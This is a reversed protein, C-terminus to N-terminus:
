GGPAAPVDACRRYWSGDHIFEPGIVRLDFSQRSSQGEPSSCLDSQLRDAAIVPFSCVLGNLTVQDKAVDVVIKAEGPGCYTGAILPIPQAAALPGSSVLLTAIAIVPWRAGGTRNLRSAQVRM